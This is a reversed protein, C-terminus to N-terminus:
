LPIVEFAKPVRLAVGDRKAMSQLKGLTGKFDDVFDPFPTLPRSLPQTFDDWHVPFVARAGTEKVVEDWYAEIFGPPQNGLTGVGLFVVDAEIGRFKGPVFNASGVVMITSGRHDILFSYSGGERYQGVRAPVRLPRTIEGPFNPAPSHHTEFATVAFTGFRYTAGDHMPEIRQEPFDEGRAINATSETGVVSAGTLRAVTASDLAHDFHSHSVLVADLRDIGTRALLWKIVGVDPHIKETVIRRLSPRTLFGDTMIASEGDTFYLTSTGFFRARLRGREMPASAPEVLIHPLPSTTTLLDYTTVSFALVAICFLGLILHLRRILPAGADGRVARRRRPRDTWAASPLAPEPCNPDNM